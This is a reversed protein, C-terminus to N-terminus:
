KKYVYGKSGDVILEMNNRVKQTANQAGTICPIGFERAIIAAHCMIGGKDTIIASSNIISPILLPTTFPAVLICGRTEEQHTVDQIVRARGEAFGQSAPLGKLFIARNINM